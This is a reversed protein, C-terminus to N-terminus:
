KKGDFEFKEYKSIEHLGEGFELTLNYKYSMIHRSEYGLLRADQLVMKRKRALPLLMENINVATNANLMSVLYSMAISLQMTNSGEQTDYGYDAFKQKVAAYNDDFDFPITEPILNKDLM